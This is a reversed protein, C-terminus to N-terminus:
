PTYWYRGTKENYSKEQLYSQHRQYWQELKKTWYLRDNETNIQLLLLVLRRLDMGANHKPFRTLWLLCMRQIHVPCRQVIVDQLSNKIAKLISKHGDTTISEIYVGLEILNDLDEKIERYHEGDSFFIHDQYSLL